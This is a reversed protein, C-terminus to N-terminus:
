WNAVTHGDLTGWSCLTVIKGMFFFVGFFQSAVLLLQSQGQKVTPMKGLSIHPYVVSTSHVLLFQPECDYHASIQILVYAQIFWFLEGVEFSPFIVRCNTNYGLIYQLCKCFVNSSLILQLNGLIPTGGTRMWKLPIKGLLFWGAIPTGGHSQFGGTTSWHKIVRQYDFMATSLNVIYASFQWRWKGLNRELCNGAMTSECFALNLTNTQPFFQLFGNIKGNIIPSEQLNERLGIWQYLAQLSHPRLPNAPSDIPKM